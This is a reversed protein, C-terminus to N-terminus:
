NAAIEAVEAPTLFRNWVRLEDLRGVFSGAQDGIVLEPDAATGLSFGISFQRTGDVFVETREGVAIAIHFWDGAPFGVGVTSGEIVMEINEGNVDVTFLPTQLVRGDEEPFLWLELTEPGPTIPVYGPARIESGAGFRAAQDIKGGDFDIAVAETATGSSSRDGANGELELCLVVGSVRCRDVPAADVGDGADGGSSGGDGDLGVFRCRDDIPDCFQGAPCVGDGACSFGEPLSPAFCGAAALAAAAILWFARGVLNLTASIM